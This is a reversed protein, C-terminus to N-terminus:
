GAPCITASDVTSQTEASVQVLIGRADFTLTRSNALLAATTSDWAVSTVVTMTLPVAAGDRSWTSSNATIGGGPLNTPSDTRGLAGRIVVIQRPSTESTMGSVVGIAYAGSALRHGSVGNEEGNLVLADSAGPVTMGAPMTLGSGATANSNGSLIQGDYEGAGSSNGMIRVVVTQEVAQNFLYVTQGRTGRSLLSFVQVVTGKALLHTDEALEALNTATICQTIGPIQESKASLVDTTKSGFQPAARDIYYRADTYDTNSGSCPSSRIIGLFQQVFAPRPRAAPAGLSAPLESIDQIDLPDPIQPAAIPVSDDM